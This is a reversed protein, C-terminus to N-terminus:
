GRRKPSVEKVEGNPLTLLAVNDCSGDGYDLVFVADNKTLMRIGSVPIKTGVQRCSKKYILEETIENYFSEGSRNIGNMGGSVSLVVEESSEDFSWTRTKSGAFTRYTEDPFTIKGDEISVEFARQRETGNSINTLTRTGEVVIGIVTFNDFTTTIQAGSVHRADTYSIVIMGSRVVGDANECGEGFDITVLGDTKTIEACSYKGAFPRFRKRDNAAQGTIAGTRIDDMLDIVLENIDEEAYDIFAEATVDDMAIVNEEPAISTEECSTFLILFGLAILQYLNKKMGNMKRSKAVLIGAM